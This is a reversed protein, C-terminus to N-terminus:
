ITHWKLMIRHMFHHYSYVLYDQLAVYHKHPAIIKSPGYSKQTVFTFRSRRLLIFLFYPENFRCFSTNM